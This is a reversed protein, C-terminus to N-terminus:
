CVATKRWVRLLLRVRSPPTLGNDARAQAMARSELRNGEARDEELADRGSDAIAIGKEDLGKPRTRRRSIAGSARPRGRAALREEVWSARDGDDRRADPVIDLVADVQRFAERARTSRRPRGM